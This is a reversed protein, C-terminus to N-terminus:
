LVMGLFALGGALFALLLVGFEYNTGYAPQLKQGRRTEAHAAAIRARTEHSLPTMDPAWGLSGM